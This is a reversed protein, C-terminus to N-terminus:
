PTIQLRSASSMLNQTFTGTYAKIHKKKNAKTDVIVTFNVVGLPYNAPISWPAEWYAISTSGSTHTTYKLTVSPTVGPIMVIASKVNKDTLAVGGTPVVNGWMRFVVMQGEKFFNTQACVASPKGIPGTVTDVYLLVAVKKGQVPVGPAPTPTPAATQHASSAHAGSGLGLAVTGGVLALAIAKKMM